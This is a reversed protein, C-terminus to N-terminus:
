RVRARAVWSAGRRDVSARCGHDESLEEILSGARVRVQEGVRAGALGREDIRHELLVGAVGRQNALEAEREEVREVRVTVGVVDRACPEHFRREAAPDSQRGRVVRRVYVERQPVTVDDPEARLREVHARRRTVGGAAQREHGGVAGLDERAVRQQDAAGSARVELLPVRMKQKSRNALLEEREGVVARHIRAVVVVPARRARDARM